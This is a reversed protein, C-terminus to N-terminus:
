QGAAISLSQGHSNMRCCQNSRIRHEGGIDLDAGVCHDAATHLDALAATDSWVDDDFARRGDARVILDELEGRDARCRLIQLVFALRGPQLDASAVYKALIAGDIAAGGLILKM